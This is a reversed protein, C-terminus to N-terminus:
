FEKNFGMKFKESIGCITVKGELKGEVKTKELFYVMLEIRLDSIGWFLSM